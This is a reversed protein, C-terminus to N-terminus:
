NEVGSLSERQKEWLAYSKRRWGKLKVNVYNKGSYAGM